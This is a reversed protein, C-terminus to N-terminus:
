FSLEPMGLIAKRARFAERLRFHFERDRAFRKLDDFIVVFTVDPQADMFSLLAVMGPRKM